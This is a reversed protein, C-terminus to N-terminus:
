RMSNPQALWADLVATELEGTVATTGGDPRVLVTFPLEGRWARDAEFRLREEFPDAYAFNPADLLGFKDLRGAIRDRQEIPDTAVLVLDFGGGKLRAALRPMEILCPPCTVSWFHVVLPRGAHNARIAAFSGRVYPEITAARAADHALLSAALAMMLVISRM